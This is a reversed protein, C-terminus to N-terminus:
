YIPPITSRYSNRPYAPYLKPPFEPTCLPQRNFNKHQDRPRLRWLVQYLSYVCVWTYILLLLIFFGALTAGILLGLDQNNQKVIQMASIHLFVLFGLRIAEVILFPLLFLHKMYYAGYILLICVVLRICCVTLVLEKYPSPNKTLRNIVDSFHLLELEDLM